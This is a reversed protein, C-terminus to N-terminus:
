RWWGGARRGDAATLLILAAYAAYVLHQRKYVDLHTYSVPRVLSYAASGAALAVWWISKM